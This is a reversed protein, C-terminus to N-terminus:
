QGSESPRTRFVFRVTDTAGPELGTSLVAAAMEAQLFARITESARFVLDAREESAASPDAGFLVQVELVSGAPPQNVVPALREALQDLAPTVGGAAASYVRRAPVSVFLPNGSSDVSLEAVPLADRFVTGIAAQLAEGIAQGPEDPLMSERIQSRYASPFADQVSQLVQNSRGQEVSSMANLLIFFALLLLFLSLFLPHSSGKDPEKREARVTFM